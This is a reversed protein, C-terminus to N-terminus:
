TLLELFEAVNPPIRKLAVDFAQDATRGNGIAMWFVETFIRADNHDIEERMAVVAPVVGLLDAVIDSKCGAIAVVQVGALNQSLWVGDALGDSFQLGDPGSHVAFHIFAMPQGQKRYRELIRELGSRTSPMLRIFRLGTRQQVTRLATLDIQLLPDDGIVALLTLSSTPSQRAITTELAELRHRMDANEAQLTNIQQQKENLQQLLLNVTSQLEDVQKALAKERTEMTPLQKQRYLAIRMAVLAIAVAVITSWDFLSKSM